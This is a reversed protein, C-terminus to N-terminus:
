FCLYMGCVLTIYCTLINSRASLLLVTIIIGYDWLILDRYIGLLATSVTLVKM